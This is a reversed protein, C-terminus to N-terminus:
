CLRFLASMPPPSRLSAPPRPLPESAQLQQLRLDLPHLKQEPSAAACPISPRAAGPARRRRRQSSLRPLPEAAMLQAGTVSFLLSSLHLHSPSPPLPALSPAKSTSTLPFPACASGPPPIRSGASPMAQSSPAMPIPGRSADQSAPPLLLPTQPSALHLHLQRRLYFWLSLTSPIPQLM